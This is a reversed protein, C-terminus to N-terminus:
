LNSCIKVAQTITRKNFKDNKTKTSELKDVIIEIDNICKILDYNDLSTDFQISFVNRAQDISSRVMNDAFVRISLTDFYDHGCDIDFSCDLTSQSYGDPDKDLISHLLEALESLLTNPSTQSTIIKRPLTALRVSKLEDFLLESTDGLFNKLKRHLEVYRHQIDHMDKSQVCLTLVDGDGAIFGDIISNGHVVREIINGGHVQRIVNTVFEVKISPNNYLAIEIDSLLTAISYM